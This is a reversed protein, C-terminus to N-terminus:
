IKIWIKIIIIKIKKKKKKLIIIIKLKKKNEFNDNEIKFINENYKMKLLIKDDDKKEEKCHM